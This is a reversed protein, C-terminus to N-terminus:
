CYCVRWAEFSVREIITPQVVEKGPFIGWTVANQAEPDDLNTKFEGQRNSAFFTIYPDKAFRALLEPLQQDSM